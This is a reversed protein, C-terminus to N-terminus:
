RELNSCLFIPGHLKFIGILRHCHAKFRAFIGSVSFHERVDKPHASFPLHALFFKWEENLPNLAVDAVVAASAGSM